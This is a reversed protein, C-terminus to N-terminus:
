SALQQGAEEADWAQKKRYITSPAVALLEAAKPISGGCANIAREIMEREIEALPRIIEPRIPQRWGTNPLCIGRSVALLGKLPEPLMDACVVAGDHLVVINRIVNQVQRVNGPWEYSLLLREVDPDFGVFRKKEERAYDALLSAAIELADEGRERLPPLHLPIVHLRYYLDERFRGAEVEKLPDRNTACVVRIDVRETKSGGVAVFSGTQLFRLLKTQLNIDLECIEDLFLTGSEAQRAAGDRDVMAGTFAGKVHGFIESEMLDRPIAGCNLPVFPRKARPSQAHIAEAAVEKGTGSEGTIFVTAKSAAASEIIRYVAQMALSSGLFGHYRNRVIQQEYVDVKRKLDSRDLANSVTVVLREATFPKVLFDDAGAKMAEVAVNVSGNATIVVVATNPAKSKVAQLVSMGDMDPLKLDLLVLPPRIADLAALAEAGTEVHAVRRQTKALYEQYLRALAPTDEILLIPADAQSM